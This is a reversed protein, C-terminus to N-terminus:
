VNSLGFALNAIIISFVFGRKSHELEIGLVCFSGAFLGWASGAYEDRAPHLEVFFRM